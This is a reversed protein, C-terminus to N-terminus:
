ESLDEVVADFHKDSLGQEDVLKQHAARMSRGSRSILGGSAYTLFMKLQHAQEKIDTGNLFRNIRDDALAKLYFKDVASDIAEAGGLKEFLTTMHKGIEWSLITCAM